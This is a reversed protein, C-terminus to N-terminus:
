MKTVVSDERLGGQSHRSVSVLLLSILSYKYTYIYINIYIVPADTPTMVLNNLLNEYHENTSTM